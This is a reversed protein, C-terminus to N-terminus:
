GNTGHDDEFYCMLSCADSDNPIYKSRAHYTRGCNDCTGRMSRLVYGIMFAAVLSFIFLFLSDM